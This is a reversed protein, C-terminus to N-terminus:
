WRFRRSSVGWKFTEYRARFSDRKLLPRIGGVSDYSWHYRTEGFVSTAMAKIKRGPKLVISPDLAPHIGALTKSRELAGPPRNLAVLNQVHDPFALHPPQRFPIDKSLNLEENSQGVLVMTGSWDGKLAVMAKAMGLMWTVHADHGCIHAVPSESGYEFRVRM